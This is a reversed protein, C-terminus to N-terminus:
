NKTNIKDKLQNIVEDYPTIKKNGTPVKFAQEEQVTNKPSFLDIKKKQIAENIAQELTIGRKKVEKVNVGLRKDLSKKNVLVWAQKTKGETEEIHLLSFRIKTFPNYIRPKKSKFRTKKRISKTYIHYEPKGLLDDFIIRTKDKSKNDAKSVLDEGKISKRFNYAKNYFTAKVTVM